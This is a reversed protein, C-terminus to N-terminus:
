SKEHVRHPENTTCEYTNTNKFYIFYSLSGVFTLM